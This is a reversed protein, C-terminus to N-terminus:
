HSVLGVARKDPHIISSEALPIEDSREHIILEPYVAMLISERCPNLPIGEGLQADGKSFEASPKAAITM